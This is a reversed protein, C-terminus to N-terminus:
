MRISKKFYKGLFYTWGSDKNELLPRMQRSTWGLDKGQTADSIYMDITNVTVGAEKMKRVLKTLLQEDGSLIATGLGKREYRADVNLMADTLMIGDFYRLHFYRRAVFEPNNERSQIFLTYEGENERKSYEGKLSAQCPLIVNPKIMLELDFCVPNLVIRDSHVELKISDALKQLIGGVIRANHERVVHKSSEEPTKTKGEDM